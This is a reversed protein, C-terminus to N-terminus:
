SLRKVLLARDEGPGEYDPVVREMQFGLARHFALADDSPSVACRVVARGHARAEELFREYLATGIGQGRRAPDVGVLHIYAEDERTQSLFGCLFGVLEGADEAVFSTGEFHLFFLRPLAPAQEPGGWWVNLM